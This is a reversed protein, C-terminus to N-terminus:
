RPRHARRPANLRHAKRHYARIYFLVNGLAIAFLLVSGAANFVHDLRPYLDEWREFSSHLFFLDFAPGRTVTKPLLGSAHLLDPVLAWAMFPLQLLPSWLAWEPWLRALRGLGRFRQRLAHQHRRVLGIALAGHAAGIAVYFHKNPM